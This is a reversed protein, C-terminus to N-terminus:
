SHGQPGAGEPNQLNPNRDPPAWQGTVRCAPTLTERPQHLGGGDEPHTWFGRTVVAFKPSFFINLCDWRGPVPCSPVGAPSAPRRYGAQTHPPPPPCTQARVHTRGHATEVICVIAELSISMNKLFLISKQIEIPQRLLTQKILTNQLPFSPFNYNLEEIPNRLLQGPRASGSGLAM